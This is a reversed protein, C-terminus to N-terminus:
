GPEEAPPDPAPLGALESIEAMAQEPSLQMLHDEYADDDQPIDPRQPADQRVLATPDPSETAVEQAPRAIGSGTLPTAETEAQGPPSLRVARAGASQGLKGIAVVSGNLAVLETRALDGRPLDLRDGPSMRALQSLPVRLRGIVATLDARMAGFGQELGPGAVAGADESCPERAPDPLILGLGGQCLGGGVDIALDLLRYADAELSLVLERADRMMGPRCKRDLAIRDDQTEALTAARVLAGDVLVAVLAADTASFGHGIDPRDSVQGTTMQQVIAAVLAGDVTVGGLRDDPGETLLCLRDGAVHDPLSEASCRSQSAGIVAMPAGVEEAAARAVALRLARVISRATRTGGQESAAMKRALVSDSRSATEAGM